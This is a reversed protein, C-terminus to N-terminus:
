NTAVETTIGNPIQAAVDSPIIKTFFQESKEDNSMLEMVFEHYAMSNAFEEAIQASKVFKMKGDAGQRRIGYAKLVMSKILEVIGKRGLKALIAPINARVDATADLSDTFEDPLEVALETFELKTLNFYLDETTSVGDFDEYTITEKIM